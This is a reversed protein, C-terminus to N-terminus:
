RGCTSRWLQQCKKDLAAEAIASARAVRDSRTM